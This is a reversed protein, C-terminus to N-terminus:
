ETRATWGTYIRQVIEFKAPDTTRHPHRYVSMGDGSRKAALMMQEVYEPTSVGLRSHRSAYVSVIIPCTPGLKERLAKVESGIHEAKSLNAGGSEDRYPFIIGDCLIGYTRAFDATVGKFYCCPVFAFKPNIAHAADLLKRLEDPTFFKLNWVFDDISWAVFNTHAVSLRALETVWELYEGRMKERSAKDKRESPPVLTVWVRIGKDGLRPLLRRFDERNTQDPRFVWRYTNAHLEALEAALQEVDLRGDAQRPPSAYTCLSGRLLQSRAKAVTDVDEGWSVGAILASLVLTYCLTLFHRMDCNTVDEPGLWLRAM